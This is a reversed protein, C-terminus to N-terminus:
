FSCDHTSTSRSFTCRNLSLLVGRFTEALDTPLAAYSFRVEGTPPHASCAEVTLLLALFYWSPRYPM